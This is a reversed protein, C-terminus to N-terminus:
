RLEAHPLDAAEHWQREFLRLIHHDEARLWPHFTHSLLGCCGSRMLKTMVEHEM